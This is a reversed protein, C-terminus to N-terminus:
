SSGRAIRQANLHIEHTNVQREQVENYGFFLPKGITRRNTTGFNNTNPNKRPEPKTLVQMVGQM